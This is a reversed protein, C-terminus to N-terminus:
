IALDEPPIVALMKTIQRVLGGEYAREITDQASAVAYHNAVSIPHAM